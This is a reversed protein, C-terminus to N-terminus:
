AAEVGFEAANVASETWAVGGNPNVEWISLHTNAQLLLPVAAAQYVTAGSKVLNKINAAGADTKRAVSVVQVGLVSPTTMAPLDSYQYTDRQGLATSQVYDNLDTDAENVRDWNNGAPTAALQTNSGAGNPRLTDVRVDGLWTNNTTGSANCLYFDDFDVALSSTFVGPAGGLGFAKYDGGGQRTNGTVTLWTVGNVKIELVGVTASNLARVEIYNWAGAALANTSAMVISGAVDVSILGVSNVKVITRVTNTADVVHFLTADGALGPLRVAAGMYVHTQSAALTKSYGGQTGNIAPISLASSIARRGPIKQAGPNLSTAKGFGLAPLANENLTQPDWEFGDIHLLSM